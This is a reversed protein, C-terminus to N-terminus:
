THTPTHTHIHTHTHTNHTSYGGDKNTSWRRGNNLRSPLPDNYEELLERELDIDFHTISHTLAFLIVHLGHFKGIYM